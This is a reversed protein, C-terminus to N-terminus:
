DSAEESTDGPDVHGKLDWLKERLAMIEQILRSRERTYDEIIVELNALLLSKDQLDRELRSVQQADRDGKRSM